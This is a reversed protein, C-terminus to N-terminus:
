VIKLQKHGWGFARKHQEFVQQYGDVLKAHFEDILVQTPEDVKPCVIPEGCAVLVPKRKAPGLPWGWRGFGLVFSVDLAISIRELFGFPDSVVDWLQTHGFAYVPVLPTGTRLAIKVIGKRNKVWAKEIPGAQFM